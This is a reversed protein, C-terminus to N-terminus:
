ASEGNWNAPIIITFTTGQNLESKIRIDGSHLDVIEKVISLGSGTGRITGVNSGRFFPDLLRNQDDDPVGIGQDEVSLQLHDKTKVISLTIPGGTPSYKIANAVLTFMVRYFLTDDLFFTLPPEPLIMNLIHNEGLYSRIEEDLQHCLQLIDVDTPAATIQGREAMISMGVDDLISTLQTIHTEINALKSRRKIDDLRDWYRNLMASSTLIVTLPTRFEHATTAMFDVKLQSLEREKQLAAELKDREVRLREAESLETVDRAVGIIGVIEGDGNRHPLKTTLFVHIAGTAPCTVTEYKNIIPQGADIVLKEDVLYNTAEEKPYFDQDTKGILEDPSDVGMFTAVAKNALNFKSEQDKIFVFNPMTDIVSRLLNQGQALAQRARTHETMDRIIAVAGTWAGSEDFIPSSSIFVNIKQGDKGKHVAEGVWEGTEDYHKRV